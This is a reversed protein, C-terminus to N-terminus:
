DIWFPPKEGSAFTTCDGCPAKYVRYVADQNRYYTLTNTTFGYILEDANCDEAGDCFTMKLEECKIYYPPLSENPFLDIYNFFLRKSTVSTVDFFGIVKDDPNTTSQINGYFFGPQLPSLLTGSDSLKKLTKYYTYAALNEVYQHVLISYRHSLIYNQDSIFRVPFDLRSENLETTSTLIFDTSKKTGYCVRTDISNRVLLIEPNTSPPTGPVVTARQTTWFPAVIKYTEEFKYRYYKANNTPDYNYVHIAVGRLTDDKTEVFAKLDQIPNIPALKETSSEFSRGDRTRINLKYERDPIAQFEQTSIYKGSEEEFDYRAGTNDTIYVDAGSEIKVDKDELKASKTLTIEQKKLENTMTAEVVLAEEYTNTELIYPETCGNIVLCILLLIITKNLRM